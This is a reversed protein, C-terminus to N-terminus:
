VFVDRFDVLDYFIKESTGDTIREYTIAAGSASIRPFWNWGAYLGVGVLGNDKHLFRLTIRYITGGFTEQKVVAPETYLLTGPYCPMMLHKIYILRSNTFGVYDFLHPPVRYAGTITYTWELGYNVQAPADFRDIAEKAGGTGWYLNKTPLTVFETIDKTTESLTIFGYVSSALRTAVEYTVEMLSYDYNAFRTDSPVGAVRGFPKTVISTAVLGPRDPGFPVPLHILVNDSTGAMNKTGAVELYGLLQKELWLRDRSRVKLKRVAGDGAWASTRREEPSGDLEEFPITLRNPMFRIAM